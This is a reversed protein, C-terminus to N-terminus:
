IDLEYNFRHLRCIRNRYVSYSLSCFSDKKGKQQITKNKKEKQPSEVCAAVWLIQSWKVSDTVRVRSKHKRKKHKREAGRERVRQTERSRFSFFHIQSLHLEQSPLFKVTVTGQGALSYIFSKNPHCVCVCHSQRCRGVLFIPM